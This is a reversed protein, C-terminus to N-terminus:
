PVLAAVHVTIDRSQESALSKTFAPPTSVNIIYYYTIATRLQVAATM